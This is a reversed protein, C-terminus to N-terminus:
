KKYKHNLNLGKKLVALRRRIELMSQRAGEMSPSLYDVTKWGPGKEASFEDIAIEAVYQQLLWVEGRYGAIGLPLSSNELKVLKLSGMRNGEISGTLIKNMEAVIEHCRELHEADQIKKKKGFM